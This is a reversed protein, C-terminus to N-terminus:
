DDSCGLSGIFLGYSGLLINLDNFDVWGDRNFDPPLGHGHQGFYDLLVILDGFGVWGDNDLDLSLNIVPNRYWILGLGAGSANDHEDTAVVDLDGDGDIDILPIADYKQGEPGSIDYVPWYPWIPNGPNLFLVVGRAGETAEAFSVVIDTLGDMNIDGASASKPIGVSAQIQIRHEEWKTGSADLRECWYLGSPRVPVVVDLLGDGDIDAMSGITAPMSSSIRREQWPLNLILQDEGPHELWRVGRREGLRDFVVLDTDGDGDMDHAILTTTWGALGIVHYTWEDINRANAPAKLYAIEVPIDASNSKAAIFLDPGHLGDIQAAVSYMWFRQPVQPFRQTIWSGTNLLLGNHAPGWHVFVGKTGQEACTVLDQRGDGDLDVAFSDECYSVLAVVGIQWPGTASCGGPNLAIRVQGSAEWATIMDPRGDNNLDGVRLGDAGFAFNDIQHRPWAQGAPPLGGRATASIALSAFCVARTMIPGHAM